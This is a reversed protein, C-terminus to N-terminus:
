PDLRRAHAPVEQVREALCGLLGADFRDRVEVGAVVLAAAGKVHVLLAAPAPRRRAGEELWREMAGIQPKLGPAKDFGDNQPPRPGAPTRPRRPPSSRVARQRPSTMRAAPEIPDACIMSRDPMPGACCRRSCPMGTM